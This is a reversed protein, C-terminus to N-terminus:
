RKRPHALPPRPTRRLLGSHRCGLARGRRRHGAAGSATEGRAASARRPQAATAHACPLPLRAAHVPARRTTARCVGSVILACWTCVERFAKSASTGLCCAKLSARRSRKRRWQRRMAPALKSACWTKELNWRLFSLNWCLLPCSTRAQAHAIRWGSQPCASHTCLCNALRSCRLTSQAHCEGRLVEADVDLLLFLVRGPVGSRLADRYARRLASCALVVQPVGRSAGIQRANAYASGANAHVTVNTLRGLM